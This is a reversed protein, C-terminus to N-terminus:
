LDDEGAFLDDRDVDFGNFPASVRPPARRGPTPARAPRDLTPNDLYLARNSPRALHDVHFFHASNVESAPIGRQMAERRIKEAMRRLVVRWEEVPYRNIKSARQPTAKPRDDEAALGLEVRLEHWLGLIEASHDPKSRPRGPKRAAVPTPPDEDEGIGPLSPAASARTSERKEEEQDQDEEEEEEDRTGEANGRREGPTGPVSAPEVEEADSEEPDEEAGDVEAAAAKKRAKCRRTRATIPSEQTSRWGVYGWTGDDAKVLLGVEELELLGEAIQDDALPTMARITRETYPRGTDTVLWGHGEDAAEGDITKDDALSCHALMYLRLYSAALGLERAAEDTFTSAPLKRWPLRRSM